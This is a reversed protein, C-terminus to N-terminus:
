ERSFEQTYLMELIHPPLFQTGVDLVDAAVILLTTSLRPVRRKQITRTNGKDWIVLLKVLRYLVQTPVHGLSELIVVLQVDERQRKGTM